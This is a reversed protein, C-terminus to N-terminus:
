GSHAVLQRLREPKRRLYPTNSHNPLAGTFLYSFMKSQQHDVGRMLIYVIWVDSRYCCYLDFPDQM